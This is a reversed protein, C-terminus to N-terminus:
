LNIKNPNNFKKNSNNHNLNKNNSSSNNIKILLLLNALFDLTELTILTLNKMLLLNNDKKNNNKILNDSNLFIVLIRLNKIISQSIRKNILLIVLFIKQNDKKIIM